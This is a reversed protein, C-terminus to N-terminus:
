LLALLEDNLQNITTIFRSAAGFSQEFRVLDVLEEDINVGSIQDRRLELGRTLTESAEYADNAVAVEFGVEGILNAYFQGPSAGNLGTVGRNEVELMALLLRSDGPAGTLSTSLNAPDAEIDARVAIDDANTGTLLSNLGLAVLADATDSDATAVFSVADGASASLEGLGFRVTLGDVLELEEGPEYGAGVDLTAIRQGNEDFVEVALGPTTGITGDMNPRITLQGNSTGGYIGGVEIDVANTSGFVPTGALGNWGLGTAAPGGDITLSVGTGTSTTQLFLRGGNATATVGNAQAAADANIVAAVEEATAETIEGFDATAFSISLPVGGAGNDVTLDLTDGDALSFPGPGTGISAGAGGFTGAVDPRPDLRNSFDFTLGGGALIRLRGSTDLDASLGPIANLEGLFDGVTTHTARIQLEHKTVRGTGPEIVNVWLEGSEVDFPLGAKALLEDRVRGDGDQDLLRNSATLTTFAGAAPTGTSHVRNVERILNRALEDLNGRLGPVFENALELLGGLTGGSVPVFGTAGKIKVALDGGPDEQLQMTNASSAGVLTNGSVMVRVTGRGGDVTTVDVLQALGNLARDREDLLDNAAVGSSETQGIQFNLRAIRQALQNVEDVRTQAESRMDTQQRELSRALSSFQSTMGVTAQVAGTLLIPDDPATSLESVKSFMREMLSSLSTESPEAFVAEIEGMGGLQAFLGGSVSVQGLIRQGLLSDVSRQVSTANVGAGILLGGRELPSAAGLQVRQRSYGITNANSLNHGITDLAFQSSLLARLGTHLSLNSM